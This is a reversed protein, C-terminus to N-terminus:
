TSKFDRAKTTDGINVFITTQGAVTLSRSYDLQPLAEVKKEIRETVQRSVEEASAGPWQANIVMTTITFSPDEERGLALYSMTGAVLFVVMFFWLLSRHGLAWELLNFSKM